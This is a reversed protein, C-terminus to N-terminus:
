DRICRVSIGSTKWYGGDRAVSTKNYSVSRVWAGDVGSENSSWFAGNGGVGFFWGDYDRYCGPRATFGSTNTAGTNPSAWLTTGTEKLKGGAVAVGGLFTTLTTWEDDTPVHWFSPCLKNTNVTHWNYLAGYTNEYTLSDNYYYCRAGTTLNTWETDDTILPIAIGDNYKTTRLNEKLWAQTGIIVTNYTNNDIDVITKPIIPLTIVSGYWATEACSGIVVNARFFRKNSPSATVIVQCSSDTADIINTWIISDTSEQWQISGKTGAIQLHLISTDGVYVPVVVQAHLHVILTLSIYFLLLLNQKM